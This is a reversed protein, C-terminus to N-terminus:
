AFNGSASHCLPQPAPSATAVEGQRQLPCRHLREQVCCVQLQVGLPTIWADRSRSPILYGQMGEKLSQGRRPQPLVDAEGHGRGEIHSEVQRFPNGGTRNTRGLSENM